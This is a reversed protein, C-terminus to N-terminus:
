QLLAISTYFSLGPDKPNSTRLSLLGSSNFLRVNPAQEQAQYGGEFAPVGTRLSMVGMLQEMRRDSNGAM